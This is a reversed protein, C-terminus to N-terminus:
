CHVLIFIITDEGDRLKKNTTTITKNNAIIM